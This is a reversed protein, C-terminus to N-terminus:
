PAKGPIELALQKRQMRSKRRLKPRGDNQEQGSAIQAEGPCIEYKIGSSESGLKSRSNEVVVGGQVVTATGAVDRVVMPSGQADVPTEWDLQQLDREATQEPCTAADSSHLMMRQREEVLQAITDGLTRTFQGRSQDASEYLRMVPVISGVLKLEVANEHLERNIVNAEGLSKQLSANARYLYNIDQTMKKVKEELDEIMEQKKQMECSYANNRAQHDQSIDALVSQLSQFLNNTTFLNHAMASLYIEVQTSASAPEAM